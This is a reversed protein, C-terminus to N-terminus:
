RCDARRRYRGYCRMRLGCVLILILGLLLFNSCLCCLRCADRVVDQRKTKVVGIYPRAKARGLGLAALRSYLGDKLAALWGHL